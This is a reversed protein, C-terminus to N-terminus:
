WGISEWTDCECMPSGMCMKEGSGECSAIGPSAGHHNESPMGGISVGDVLIETNSSQLACCDPIEVAVLKEGPWDGRNISRKTGPDFRSAGGGGSYTSKSYSGSTCYRGPRGSASCVCVSRSQESSAFSTSSIGRGSGASVHSVRRGDGDRDSEAPDESPEQQLAIYLCGLISCPLGSISMNRNSWCVHPMRETLSPGFSFGHLVMIHGKAWSEGARYWAILEIVANWVDLCLGAKLTCPISWILCLMSCKAPPICLMRVSVANAVVSTKAKESDHSWCVEVPISCRRPALTSTFRASVFWWCFARGGSSSSRRFNRQLVQTYMSTMARRVETSSSSEFSKSATRIGHPGSDSLWSTSGSIPHALVRNGRMPRTAFRTRFTMRCGLLVTVITEWAFSRFLAISFQSGGQRNSDGSSGEDSIWCLKSVASAYRHAVSSYRWWATGSIGDIDASSNALFTRSLSAATGILELATM